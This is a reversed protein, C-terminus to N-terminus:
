FAIPLPNIIRHDYIFLETDKRKKELSYQLSYTRILETKYNNRILENDDYTMIWKNRLKKVCISLAIHDDDEYNNTYLSPGAKVYPPDFNFFVNTQHADVAKAFDIADFNTVKIKSRLEYIRNILTILTEKNFRCDMSYDGNQNIGGIPNALIIGSRNCRNLYFVSFGLKLQGNKIGGLYIEKQLQWNQIDIPTDQIMQIFKNHLHGSTVCKWFSYIAPDLDNILVSNVDNNLLLKIGLGFGGAYAEAYIPPTNNFQEKILPSVYPYLKAKGGPYRLPSCSQPM